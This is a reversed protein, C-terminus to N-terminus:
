RWKDISVSVPRTMHWGQMTPNAEGGVVVVNVYKRPYVPIVTHDPLDLYERPWIDKEGGLDRGRLVPEIFLKYYVNSRFERLTSTANKWLYDKVDEKSFGEQALSRARPPALLTVCGTPHEAVALDRALDSLPHALYNGTHFWGGGFLTLVSHEAKFGREVGLSEWPSGEENEAFCFSFCGVNGQNGMVNVGVQGGGLNIIFLRLGRGITANARNGPGLAYTGSNMQIENRIPGSIVQMFSFSNTSRVMASYNASFENESIAEVAALLVPMYEPRCGAMVGNIAVKEVTVEWEEPLMKTTVIEEASHSTAHLMEGIRDETPPIIPLGDTWGQSYFFDQIQALGGELSMRPPRRSARQGKRKEEPSLPGTLAAVMREIIESSQRDTITETPYPVTAFRVPTGLKESMVQADRIFTDYILVVGPLGGKELGAAWKVAWATTSCSPAAGYVFADAKKQMKHWLEPDDSLYPSPKNLSVVKLGHFRGELFDAAQTLVGELGSGEPWSNIIYVLKEKL